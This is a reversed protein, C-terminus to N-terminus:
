RDRETTASARDAAIYGAARGRRGNPRLVGQRVLEVLQRNATRQAAGTIAMFDRRRVIGHKELLRLAATTVAGPETSMRGLLYRRARGEGLATADGSEVLDVLIRRLTSRPIGTELSIEGIRKPREDLADLVRRVRGAPDGRGPPEVVLGPQLHGRLDDAVIRGGRCDIAAAQVANQLERVNGPWPYSGILRIADARLQLAPDREKLFHRALLLADDDRERLPPVTIQYQLLRYYLDERFLKARIREALDQHSGVVVRLDVAVPKGADRAGLRVVEREQLARLLKPQLSLPMEAIEDLFLTGGDAQEIVGAYRRDAGTFAGREHGLFTSDATSEPVTSCNIAVLPGKRGSLRHLARAALEKGTGTEGLLVVSVPESAVRKLRERLKAMAASCGIFQESRPLRAAM